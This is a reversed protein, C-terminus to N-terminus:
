SPGGRKDGGGAYKRVTDLTLEIMRENGLCRRQSKEQDDLLIHEGQGPCDYVFLLAAREMGFHEAVAFTAASEM